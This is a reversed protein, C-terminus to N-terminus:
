YNAFIKPDKSDTLSKFAAVFRYWQSIIDDNTIFSPLTRMDSSLRENGETNLFWSIVTATKTFSFTNSSWHLCDVHISLSHKVTGIKLFNQAITIHFHFNSVSTMEDVRVEFTRFYKKKSFFYYIILLCTSCGRRLTSLYPLSCLQVFSSIFHYFNMLCLPWEYVFINSFLVYLDLNYSINFWRM